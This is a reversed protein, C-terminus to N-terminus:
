LSISCIQLAKCSEGAGVTRTETTSVASALAQSTDSMLLVKELIPTGAADSALQQWWRYGMARSYVNVCRPSSAPPSSATFFALIFPRQLGQKWGEM